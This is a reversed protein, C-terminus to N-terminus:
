TQVDFYVELDGVDIDALAKDAMSNVVMNIDTATTFRYGTGGNLQAILANLAAKLANALTQTTGADSGDATAVAAINGGITGQAIVIETGNKNIQTSPLLRDVDGADGVTIAVNNFAADSTAEFAKVLKHKVLRVISNAPATLLKITQATNPTTETLDAHTIRCLHNANVSAAQLTMIPLSEM